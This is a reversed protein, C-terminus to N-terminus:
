LAGRDLAGKGGKGYEKGGGGGEKRAGRGGWFKGRPNM